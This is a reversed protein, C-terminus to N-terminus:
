PEEVRGVTRQLLRGDAGFSTITRQLGRGTVVIRVVPEMRGAVEVFAVHSPLQALPTVSVENTVENEFRVSGPHQATPM